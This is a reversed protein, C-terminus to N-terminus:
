GTRRMMRRRIGTTGLSTTQNGGVFTAAAVQNNYVKVNDGTPNFAASTLDQGLKWGALPHYLCLIM